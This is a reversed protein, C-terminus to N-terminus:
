SGNPQPFARYLEYLRCEGQRIVLVHRDGNSNSGGEIPANAPIPYLGPDSEEPYSSVINITVTIQNSPVIVYPIGIPSTSGPPWVGSGFDAHVNASAGITNIYAISNADVPLTDVPTNWINDVPLVPCGGLTPAAQTQIPEDAWVTPTLIFLPLALIMTFLAYPKVNM